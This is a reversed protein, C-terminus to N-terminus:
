LRVKVSEEPWDLLRDCFDSGVYEIKRWQDQDQVLAQVTQNLLNFGHCEEQPGVCALADNLFLAASLGEVKISSRVKSTGCPIHVRIQIRSLCSVM